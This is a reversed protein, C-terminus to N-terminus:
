INKLFKIITKKRRVSYMDISNLLKDLSEKKIRIQDNKKHNSDRRNLNVYIESLKLIEVILNQKNYNRDVDISLYNSTTDYSSRGDFCGRIFAARIQENSNKISNVKNTLIDICKETSVNTKEILITFGDKSSIQFESSDNSKIEPKIMSMYKNILKIILLFHSALEDDSVMGSN